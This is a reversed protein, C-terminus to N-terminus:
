VGRRDLPLKGKRIPEPEAEDYPESFEVWTYFMAGKRIADQRAEPTNEIVKWKRDKPEEKWYVYSKVDSDNETLNNKM